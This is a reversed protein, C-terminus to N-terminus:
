DVFLKGKCKDFFLEGKDSNILVASVSGTYPHEFPVETGLGWYDCITIDSIREAKAYGTCQKHEVLSVM